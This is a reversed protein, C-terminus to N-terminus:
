GNKGGRASPREGPIVKYIREAPFVQKLVKSVEPGTTESKGLVLYGEGLVSGVLTKIIKAQVEREFYILVNRCLVLDFHRRAGYELLNAKEFRVRARMEGRVKYELGEKNEKIVFYREADIEPPLELGRYSGARAVALSKDDYDSGVVRVNWRPAESGLAENALIAVSYPEEGSSCGASWVRLTRSHLTKKAEAIAPIVVERLKGYVDRDRFFQTVNVTLENLLKTYEDPDKKLTNLYDLYGGAGTARLRVSIRRKLYNEKYQECDLGRDTYIRRKLLVFARDDSIM